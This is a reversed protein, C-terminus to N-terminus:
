LRPQLSVHRGVCPKPQHSGHFARLRKKPRKAPLKRSDRLRCSHGNQRVESDHSPTEHLPINSSTTKVRRQAFDQDLSPQHPAFPDETDDEPWSQQVAARGISIAEQAANGSPQPPAALTEADDLRTGQEASNAAEPRSFGSQQKSQQTDTFWTEADNLLVGMLTSRHQQPLRQHFTEEAAKSVDQSNRYTTNHQEFLTEAFNCKNSCHSVHSQEAHIFLM